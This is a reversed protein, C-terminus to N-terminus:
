KDSKVMGPLNALQETLFDGTTSLEGLLTDLANFQATYRAEIAAIRRDLAERQSTIRDIQTNYGETRIDIIGGAETYRNLLTDLRVAYGDESSFIDAVASFNDAIADTLLEDDIELVSNDGTRIGLQALSNFDGSLGDVVNGMESRLSFAIQRVTADGQLLGATNAEPDYATLDNLTANLSNYATVFGEVAKKVSSTNLSVDLTFNEGPKAKSLNLTLGEIMGEVTLNASTQTFGDVIVISDLAEVKETMPNSAANPDFSLQSLDGTDGAGTSVSVAIANDAGSEDSTLVLRAGDQDTVISATVGVNDDAENIANRISELSDEGTLVDLSFSEGNVTITLQGTGVSTQADTYGASAIKHRSALQEVSVEHSGAAAQTDATATFGADSEVSVKRGSFTEPDQLTELKSQFNELASKLAGFASVKSEALYAKSNLRNEAPAREAAVLQEVISGINLGSGIGTSIISAMENEAREYTEGDLEQM